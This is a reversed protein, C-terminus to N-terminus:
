SLFEAAIKKAWEEAQDKVKIPGSDDHRAHEGVQVAGLSILKEAMIEGGRNFTEYVSDGMGFLAFRVGDLDPEDEDLADFFPAAGTPLEGDGYTSCVVIHFDDADLDGPDFEMMDYLSVDQGSLVDALHEAVSEANGAESGYLIVVAM